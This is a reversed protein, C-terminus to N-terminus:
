QVYGGPLPSKVNRFYIETAFLDQLNLDILIDFEKNIFDEVKTHIPKFYWNIDKRSIFDYSLKPLFRSILNKNKVYGLAKVEKRDHQLETVFTSVTDYDQVDDLTYLIGVSRAEKLNVIKRTSVQKSQGKKFYYQGIKKKIANCM